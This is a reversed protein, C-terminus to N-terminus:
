LVRVSLRASLSLLSVSLQYVRECSPCELTNLGLDSIEMRGSCCPCPVSLDVRVNEAVAPAIFMATRAKERIEEMSVDLAELLADMTSQRPRRKRLNPITNISVNAKKAHDAVTWGKERRLLRMQNSILNLEERSLDVLM